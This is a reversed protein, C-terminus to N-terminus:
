MEKSVQAFFSDPNSLLNKPSDYEVLRGNDFVAIKDCNKVTQVRHAIIIMTSDQFEQEIIRQFKLETNVDIYATAEDLIMLNRKLYVARVLSLIQQEGQSLNAGENELKFKLKHDLKSKDFGLEELLSIIMLNDKEQIPHPDINEAITGEFM